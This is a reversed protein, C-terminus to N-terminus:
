PQPMDVPENFGTFIMETATVVKTEALEMSLNMTMKLLYGNEKDIWMKGDGTTNAPNFITASSPDQQLYKGIDMTFALVSVPVGDLTEEGELTVQSAFQAVDTQSMIDPATGSLAQTEPTSLTFSEAGPLKIYVQGEGLVLFEITQGMAELKLYMQDPQQFLGEGTTAVTQGAAEVTTTYSLRMSEVDQMAAKSQALIAAVAEDGAQLVATPETTATPAPTDTPVLTATPLTEAAPSCAAALIMMLIGVTWILMIRRNM